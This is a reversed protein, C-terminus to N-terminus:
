PTAVGYYLAIGDATGLVADPVGDGDLDGSASWRVDDPGPFSAVLTASADKAEFDLLKISSEDVALARSAESGAPGVFSWASPAVLDPADILEFAGTAPRFLVAGSPGEERPRGLAFVEDVGDGDVDVVETPSRVQNHPWTGAVTVQSIPDWLTESWGAATFDYFATVTREHVVDVPYDLYGDLGADPGMSFLEDLGDGDFDGLVTRNLHVWNTMPVATPTSANLTQRLVGSAQAELRVLWTADTGNASLVSLDVVDSEAFRGLFTRDVNQPGQFDGGVPLRMPAVLTGPSSRLVGLEGTGPPTDPDGVIAVVRARAEFPDLDRLGILGRELEVGDALLVPPTDESGGWAVYLRDAAPGGEVRILVDDYGNGDVDVVAIDTEAEGELPIERLAMSGTAARYRYIGVSAVDAGTVVADQLGDGDTDGVRVQGWFGLPEPPGSLCQYGPGCNCQAGCESSLAFGRYGVFDVRGDGNLDGSALVAFGDEGQINGAFVDPSFSDDGGMTPLATPDSHFSGDAVGYTAFVVQTEEGQVAALLDNIGDGNADAFGVWGSFAPHSGPPEFTITGNCGDRLEISLFGGVFKEGAFYAQRPRAGSCAFGSQPTPNPAEFAARSPGDVLGPFEGPGTISRDAAGEASVDWLQGGFATVATEEPNMFEGQEGIQPFSTARKTLGTYADRTQWSEGVHMPVFGCDGTNRLVLADTDGGAACEGGICFGNIDPWDVRGEILVIDELGDGTVDGFTPISRAPSWSWSSRVRREDDMCRVVLTGERARADAELAIVDDRGDSDLDRAQVWVVPAEGVNDEREFEDGPSRCVGDIGCASGEPCVTPDSSCSWRCEDTTGPELCGSQGDCAETAPEVVGNGCEGVTHLPLTGCAAGVIVASAFAITRSNTM